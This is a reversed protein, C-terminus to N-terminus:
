DSQRPPPPLSRRAEGLDGSLQGLEAPIPRTGDDKLVKRYFLRHRVLGLYKNLFFGRPLFPLVPRRRLGLAALEVRAREDGTGARALARRLARVAERKNMAALYARALNVLLDPNPGMRRVAEECFVIGHQYHRQVEAVAMGYYSLAVPDNLDRAHAKQFLLLRESPNSTALGEAILARVERTRSTLAIEASPEAAGAEDAAATEESLRQEDPLEM